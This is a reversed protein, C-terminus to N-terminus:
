DCTDKKQQELMISNVLSRSYPLPTQVGHGNMDSPLHKAERSSYMNPFPSALLPSLVCRPKHLALMNEFVYM